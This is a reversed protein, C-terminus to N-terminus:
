KVGPTAPAPGEASPRAPTEEQLVLQGMVKAGAAMEITRYYLNGIVRAKPGLSIHDGAYVHGTVQGHLVVRPAFVDGEVLGTPGVSLQAGKASSMVRGKVRGDLHLGGAFRVDGHIETQEGILSEVVISKGWIGKM